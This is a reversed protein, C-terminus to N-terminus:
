ILLSAKLLQAAYLIPVYREIFLKMTAKFLLYCSFLWSWGKTMDQYFPANDYLDVEDESDLCWTLVWAHLGHFNSWLYASRYALTLRSCKWERRWSAPGWHRPIRIRSCRACPGRFCCNNSTFTADINFISFSGFEDNLVCYSRNCHLSLYEALLSTRTGRLVARDILRRGLFYMISRGMSQTLAGEVCLFSHAVLM